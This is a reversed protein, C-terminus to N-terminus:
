VLFALSVTAIEGYKRALGKVHFITDQEWGAPVKQLLMQFPTQFPTQRLGGREKPQGEIQEDAKGCWCM